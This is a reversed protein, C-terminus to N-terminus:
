SNLLPHSKFSVTGFQIDISQIGFLFAQEMAVMHAEANERLMKAYPGEETEFSLPKKMGIPIAACAVAAIIGKIFSRRNFVM